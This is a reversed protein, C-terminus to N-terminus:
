LVHEQYAAVLRRLVAIESRIADGHETEGVRRPQAFTRIEQMKPIIDTGHTLAEEISEFHHHEALHTGLPDLILTYGRDGYAESFAGDITIAQRSDKLPREGKAVMVPVHGNVIMRAQPDVGFEALVKQCFEPTHILTFYPNKTEQHTTKDAIFHMELTAM